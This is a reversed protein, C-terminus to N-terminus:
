SGSRATATPWRRKGAQVEAMEQFVAAYRDALRMDNMISDRFSRESLRKRTWIEPTRLADLRGGYAKLSNSFSFMTNRLDMAEGVEPDADYFSRMAELRDSLARVTVPTVVDRMVELQAMTLLRSTPGPNGVVFVASGESV